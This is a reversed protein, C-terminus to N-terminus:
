QVVAAAQKAPLLVKAPSGSTLKENANDIVVRVAVTSTAPDILPAIHEITGPVTVADNLGYIEVSLVDGERLGSISQYPLFATAKLSTLQVVRILYDEPQEGGAAGSNRGLTVSEAIDKTIKVVTGDIPSKLIRRALEREIRAAQLEFVAIEEQATLLNGEYAKLIANERALEASNSTGRRSLTELKKYREGQQDYEAQAAIIRGKNQAQAQVIQLQAEILDTDLKILEQKKTVKQGEKVLIESIFGTEIASIEISRYPEVYTEGISEGILDSQALGVSSIAACLATLIFNPKLM